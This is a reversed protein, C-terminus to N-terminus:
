SNKIIQIVIIQNIQIVRRLFDEYKIPFHSNKGILEMIVTANETSIVNVIQQLVVMLRLMSSGFQPQIDKELCCCHLMTMQWFLQIAM